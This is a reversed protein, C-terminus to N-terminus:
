GGLRGKVGIKVGVGWAVEVGLRCRGGGLGCGVGGRLVGVNTGRGRRM